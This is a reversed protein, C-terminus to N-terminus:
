ASQYEIARTAGICKFTLKHSPSVASEIEVEDETNEEETTTENNDSDEGFKYPEWEWAILMGSFHFQDYKRTEDSKSFDSIQM